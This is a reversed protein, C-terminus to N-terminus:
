DRGWYDCFGAWWLDLVVGPVLPFAQRAEAEFASRTRAHQLRSILETAASEYENRPAGVKSGMLYPDWEYLSANVSTLLGLWRRTREKNAKGTV